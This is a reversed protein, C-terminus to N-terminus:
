VCLNPTNYDVDVSAIYSPTFSVRCAWFLCGSLNALVLALVLEVRWWRVVDHGMIGGIKNKKLFSLQVSTRNLAIDSLRWILVTCSVSYKVSGLYGNFPGM